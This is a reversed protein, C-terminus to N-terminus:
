KKVFLIKKNGSILFITEMFLVVKQFYFNSSLHTGDIRSSSNPPPLFKSIQFLFYYEEQSLWIALMHGLVHPFATLIALSMRLAHCTINHSKFILPPIELYTLGPPLLADWKHTLM